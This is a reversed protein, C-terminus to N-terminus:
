STVAKDLTKGNKVFLDVATAKLQEAKPGTGQTVDVSAEARGKTIQGKPDFSLLVKGAKGQAPSDGRREFQVGGSIEASRPQNAGVLYLDAQPARIEFGKDGPRFAHVNGVGSVREVTSDERLGIVVKDASMTRDKQEVRGTQLVIQRPDKRINASQATITAKQKQTTVVKVASKLNLVSEHSNYHAGVASGSAGPIRFEIAEGTEAIGSKRNFTLGSTKVHIVNQSEAAPDHNPAANVTPDAELDIHVEGRATVDGSEPDYIFDSGHIQDARNNERGYVTISVDHLEAKGGEARGPEKYQQFSAAHITFLTRGGESQSYTFGTGSRAVNEAMKRPIDTFVRHNRVISRLYFTAAALVALVAGLAFLKRLWRPDLM